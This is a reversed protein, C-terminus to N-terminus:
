PRNFFDKDLDDSSVLIVTVPRQRRQFRSIIGKDDVGRLQSNVINHRKYQFLNFFLTLVALIIKLSNCLNM